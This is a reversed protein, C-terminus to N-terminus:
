VTQAENAIQRVRERTLGFEAALADLTDGESRMALIVVDRQRQARRLNCEAEVVLQAM